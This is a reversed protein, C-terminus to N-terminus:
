GFVIEKWALVQLFVDADEADYEGRVIRIFREEHDRMFLLIREELLKKDLEVGESPDEMDEIRFSHKGEILGDVLTQTDEVGQPLEPIYYWYNSGGELADIIANTINERNNKIISNAFRDALGQVHQAISDITETLM